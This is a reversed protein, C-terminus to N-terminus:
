EGDLLKHADRHRLPRLEDADEVGLDAPQEGMEEIDGRLGHIDAREGRREPAELLALLEHHEILPRAAAAHMGGIHTGAAHM